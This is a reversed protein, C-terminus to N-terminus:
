QLDGGKDLGCSPCKISDDFYRLYIWEERRGGSDVQDSVGADRTQISHAERGLNWIKVRAGYDTRLGVTM